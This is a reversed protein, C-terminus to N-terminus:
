SFISVTAAVAAIGSVVLAARTLWLMTREREDAARLREGAIKGLEGGVRQAEAEQRRLKPLALLLGALIAFLVRLPPM